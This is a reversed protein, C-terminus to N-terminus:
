RMFEFNRPLPKKTRIESIRGYNLMKKETYVYRNQINRLFTM